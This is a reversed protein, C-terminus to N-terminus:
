YEGHLAGNGHGNGTSTGNGHGNSVGNGNAKGRLGDVYKQAKGLMWIPFAFKFNPYSIACTKNFVGEIAEQPWSGDPNQRSMVLRAAREIPEPHPYKAHMLAMAAWCTQVSQTQEHEVWRSQECSKYSEGWGGDERQHSLLFDCAKRAYPSTEYTEGVLSLSETAFMAAYTFCIGWSGIWGGEPTQANHIYKIADRITRDIEQARYDPYLKRFHSLATVVSTTCEPYCYEVMINGFVEAPNLLEMWQPGRIAEYSAYGGGPNQMTLLRDVPWRLREDSVRKPMYDLHSQLFMVSKMGEATCDSVLYSQEKTSFGWAGKTAMRYAEKFHKPNDLMQGEDLWELAKKMCERNEELEALGTEVCAQTIFAIDWLQSGNTGCIRMGEPGLWMFDHRKIEHQKWAESGAGERHFRAVLNFMKNVPALTQYSTNEDEMVILEYARNIGANLLPPFPCQGYTTLVVNILDYIASHPAYLDVSAINNRQAPWYIKYYDETYLEQRLALTLDNTPMKFRVGYLYSMALYPQRVHIWWRSPHIPLWEPLLWLEPPVPNVGEWDYVNLLALWFKGWAPIAACGGLQHLKARAKACTPHEADVGLLRLAVYNLGTGFVTSQGEIHLGWGGDEKAMNILYRIMERREPDKFPMGSVYSGIVFGPLLFMPGGYEGPWHGDHAQLHKYFEMGNRAAEFFTNPKPLTPLNLPIGMWFKDVDNMPWKECEEDTELYHWTHRGGDNVLLRWRNYDTVPEKGSVPADIRNYM